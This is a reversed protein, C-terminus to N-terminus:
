TGKMPDSPFVSVSDWEGSDGASPVIGAVYNASMTFHTGIKLSCLILIGCICTHVYARVCMSMCIGVHM